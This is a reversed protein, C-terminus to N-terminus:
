DTRIARDRRLQRVLFRAPHLLEMVQSNCSRNIPVNIDAAPQEAVSRELTDALLKACSAAVSLGRSGYGGNVYLGDHYRAPQYKSVARGHQLDKYETKYFTFDPLPGLVPLRDHTTARIEAWSSRITQPSKSAPTTLNQASVSHGCDSRQGLMQELSALNEENDEARLTADLDNRQYTSGVQWENGGDLPIVTQKGCLITELDASPAPLVTTQGRAPILSLAEAEALTDMAVGSALVVHDYHDTILEEVVGSSNKQCSSVAWRAQKRERDEGSRKLANSDISLVRRNAHFQVNSQDLLLQCLLAINVRAADPFFLTESNLTIGARSSSTRQDLKQYSDSDAFEGANTLLQLAGTVVYLTDGAAKDTSVTHLLELMAQCGETFFNSALTPERTIHPRLVAAQNGSAASAPKSAQEFLTVNWGRSSLEFATTCGALGAGVVLVNRPKHDAVPTHPSASPKPPAFWPLHGSRHGSRDGPM